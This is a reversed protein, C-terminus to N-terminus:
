LIILYRPTSSKYKEYYTGFKRQLFSEEIRIKLHINILYFVFGLWLYWKGFIIILGAMTCHMGLSIPNRSYKFVSDSVIGDKTNSLRQAAKISILRGLISFSIGSVVIPAIRIRIGEYLYFISLGLPALYFLLNVIFVVILFFSFIIKSHDSEKVMSFTSAESPIPWALFDLLFSLYIGIILVHVVM